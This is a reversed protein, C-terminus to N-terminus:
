VIKSKFRLNKLVDVEGRFVLESRLRVISVENSHCIVIVEYYCSSVM